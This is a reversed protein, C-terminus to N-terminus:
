EHGPGKKKEPGLLKVKGELEEIKQRQAAVLAGLFSVVEAMELVQHKLFLELRSGDYTSTEQIITKMSAGAARLAEDIPMTFYGPDEYNNQPM